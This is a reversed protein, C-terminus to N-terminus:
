YVILVCDCCKSPHLFIIFSLDVFTNITLRCDVVSVVIVVGVVAVVVAVPVAVAVVDIVVVM